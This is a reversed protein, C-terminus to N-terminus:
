RYISHAYSWVKVFEGCGVKNTILQHTVGPYVMMIGALVSPICMVETNLHSIAPQIVQQEVLQLHTVFLHQQQWALLAEHPRSGM